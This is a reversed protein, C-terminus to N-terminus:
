QIPVNSHLIGQATHTNMAYMPASPVQAQQDRPNRMDNTPNLVRQPPCEKNPATPLAKSNGDNVNTPMVHINPIPTPVM